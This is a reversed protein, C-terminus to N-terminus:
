EKDVLEYRLWTEIERGFLTMRVLAGQRRKDVRIISKEVEKLIGSIIQIRDGEQYAQSFSILGDHAFLWGVFQADHGYLRWDGKESTLISIISENKSSRLFITENTPAEFFVYGPYMIETPPDGAENKKRQEVKKAIIARANTSVREIHEKAAEERGTLCFVCGYARKNEKHESMAEGELKM